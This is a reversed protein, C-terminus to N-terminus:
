IVTQILIKVINELNFKFDATKLRIQAVITKM